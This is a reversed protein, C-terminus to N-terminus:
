VLLLDCGEAAEAASEAPTGGDEAFRARAAESLDFGKLGIGAKLINRAMGQGMNGLGIIATGPM